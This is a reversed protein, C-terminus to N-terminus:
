QIYNIKGLHQFIIYLLVTSVSTFIIEEWFDAWRKQSTTLISVEGFRRLVQAPNPNLQQQAHPLDSWDHGIRHLGIPLLRGPEETWPIEWALISSHTAMEKELPDEQGLFQVLTEQKKRRCQCTSKKVVLVMQHLLPHSAQIARSVWHVHTQAFELLYHIVPFVSISCNM